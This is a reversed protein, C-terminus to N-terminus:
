GNTKAGAAAKAKMDAIRADIFGANQVNGGTKMREYAALAKQWQGAAEATTALQRDVTMTFAKPASVALGELVEVAKADQGSKSLATAYGLGAVTKMGAPASKSVAEWAAAAKAFDGLEQATKAMELHIGDKAGAPATRALGELAALREAGAKTTVITGLENEAKEVQGKQYVGYLAYGGAAALVVLIGALSQKWYQVPLRLLTPVDNASNRGSQPSTFDTM